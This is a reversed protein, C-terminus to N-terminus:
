KRVGSGSRFIWWAGLGLALGGAVDVVYHQRTFLTSLVILSAWTWAAFRWRPRARGIALGMFVSLSVHLSPFCNRCTDVDHVLRLLWAGFRWETTFAPRVIETPFVFFVAASAVIVAVALMATRRLFARDPVVLALVFPMVYFSLYPIVFATVIPMRLVPDWGFRTPTFPSLRDAAAYMVIWFVALLGAVSFKFKVTV